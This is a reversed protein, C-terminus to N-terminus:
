KHLSEQRSVDFQRHPRKSNRVVFGPRQAFQAAMALAKAADYGGQHAYLLYRLILPHEKSIRFSDAFGFAAGMWGDERVHWHTPYRPNMPHDFYTVGEAMWERQEGKNDAVYGSYDMWRSRKGFIAKEGVLGESNSITGGGFHGSLSKAVRVALFGFNTQDLTVHERGKGPRFTIQLELLYEGEAEPIIAAVLDQELIEVGDGDFWGLSSAMIAEDDGDEYAIWGKQRIRAGTEDSWFDVGEVKYHAFWISRHHDHNPAGPHGMRTLSTGSPGNFPFFFPRPYENGYHWRTLEKGDIRLSVQHGPLPLVECRAPLDSPQCRGLSPLCVSFFLVILCPMRVIM